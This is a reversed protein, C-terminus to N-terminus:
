KLSCKMNIRNSQGNPFPGWYLIKVYINYCNHRYLSLLYIIYRITIVNDAGNPM